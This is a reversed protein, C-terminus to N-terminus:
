RMESSSYVSDLLEKGLYKKFHFEDYYYAKDETFRNIGTFDFVNENGFISQILFLDRHNFERQNYTPCVIIKYDTNNRSFIEQIEELMRIQDSNLKQAEEQRNGSRLPFNDSREEYYAISDRKFLDLIGKNYFENSVTDYAYSESVLFESMYQHFHNTLKYHSLAFLFRLDCFNLFSAYHIYFRSSPYVEPHKMYLPVNNVFETFTKSEINVLAYSIKNGNKDLYQIKSWIGELRERSADFSYIRNGTKIYNTWLSPPIFLSTSSGFIFSDYQYKKSNKIFMETSVFDRNKNIFFNKNYNEYDHIIMYPDSFIYVITLVIFPSCFLVIRGLLNLMTKMLPVM